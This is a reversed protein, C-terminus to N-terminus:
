INYVGDGDRVTSSSYGSHMEHQRAVGWAREESTNELLQVSACFLTFCDFSLIQLLHWMEASPKFTSVFGWHSVGSYQVQVLGSAGCSSFCCGTVAWLACRCLTDWKIRTVTHIPSCCRFETDLSAPILSALHSTPPWVAPPYWLSFQTNQQVRGVM